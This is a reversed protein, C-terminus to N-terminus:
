GFIGSIADGIDNRAGIIIIMLVVLGIVVLIMKILSSVVIAKKGKIKM